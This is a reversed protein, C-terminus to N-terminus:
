WSISNIVVAWCNLLIVFLMFFNGAKRSLGVLCVVSLLQLLKGLLNGMAPNISEMLLRTTINAEAKPGFFAVFATTSLFDFVMTIILIVWWIRYRQLSYRINEAIRIEQDLVKM